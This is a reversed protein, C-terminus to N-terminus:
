VQLANTLDILNLNEVEYRLTFNNPEMLINKYFSIPINDFFHKNMFVKLYNWCGSYNQLTIRLLDKENGHNIHYKDKGIILQGCKRPIRKEIMRFENLEVTEPYYTFINLCKVNPWKFRYSGNEDKDGKFFELVKSSQFSKAFFVELIKISPFLRLIKSITTSGSKVEHLSLIEINKFHKAMFELHSLKFNQCGNIQINKLNKNLACVMERFSRGSRFMNFDIVLTKLNHMKYLNSCIIDINNDFKRNAEIFYFIWLLEIKRCVNSPAVDWFDDYIEVQLNINFKSSYDNKTFSEAFKYFKEIIYVGNYVINVKRFYESIKHLKNSSNLYTDHCDNLILELTDLENAKFELLGDLLLKSWYKGTCKISLNKMSRPFHWKDNVSNDKDYFDFLSCDLIITHPQLSKLYKFTLMHMQQLPFRTFELIKVNNFVDLRELAHVCNFWGFQIRLKGVKNINNRIKQVLLDFNSQLLINGFHLQINLINNRLSYHSGQAHFDYEDSSNENLLSDEVLSVKNRIIYYFNKCTLKFNLKDVPNSLQDYIISILENCNFVVNQPHQQNEISNEKISYRPKGLLNGM